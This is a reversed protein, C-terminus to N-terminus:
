EKRTKLSVYSVPIMIRRMTEQPPGSFLLSLEPKTIVEKRVRRAIAYRLKPVWMLKFGGAEEFHQDHLTKLFYVFSKPLPHEKDEMQVALAKGLKILEEFSDTRERWKVTEGFITARDKEKLEKDGREDADSKSKELEESALHAFRQIPFHPKVLLIGASLTINPNQCTYERFDIYLKQALEITQDWPGIIFLDDGGSYVIYFLGKVKGKLENRNNPDSHWKDALQTCIQNLWGAFFLDFSNSLTSIRSISRPEVGEGFITGMRDVDAKLVGLVKAGASLSAIEEFDLVDDENIGEKGAKVPPIDELAIPAENGLFRFGFAVNTPADNLIFDTSNLRYLVVEVERGQLDRLLQQAQREDQEDLLKVTVGFPETFDLPIEEPLIDSADGYIYAIHDTKPLRGGIKQHQECLDCVREEPPRAEIIPTIQCVHCVDYPKERLQIEPTFFSEQGLLPHFKRQKEEVLRDELLGYIGRLDEFDKPRVEARVIQVGLEGQFFRNNLLWKQLREECGKLKKRTPEDHPVLLDFRGGGCFLINANTLGLERVFWDAIIDALISLYFSRGRLRKATGKAEVQPKTIRYIFKQIGSIDGRVMLCVPKDLVAPDRRPLGHLLEDLHDPFLHSVCAAIAATVKLHGYLSIDPLTRYEEDEEWPTASPIFTAYKRLLSLFGM